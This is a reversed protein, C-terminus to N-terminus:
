GPFMTSLDVGGTPAPPVPVPASGAAAARPQAIMPQNAAVQPQNAAPTALLAAARKSMEYDERTVFNKDAFRKRGQEDVEGEPAPVVLVYATKGIFYGPTLEVNQNLAEAPLGLSTLLNVYLKLVFPKSWDTGLVVMVPLGRVECEETILTQFRLTTKGGEKESTVQSVATIKVAYCGGPPDRFLLSVPSVGALPVTIKFNQTESM